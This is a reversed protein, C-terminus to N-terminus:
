SLLLPLFVVSQGLEAGAQQGIIRRSPCDATAEYKFFFERLPHWLITSEAPAGPLPVSRMVTYDGSM